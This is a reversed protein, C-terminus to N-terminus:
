FIVTYGFEVFHPLEVGTRASGEFFALVILINEGPPRNEIKEGNHCFIPPPAMGLLSYTHM